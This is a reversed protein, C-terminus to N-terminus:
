YFGWALLAALSYIGLHIMYNYLYGNRVKLIMYPYVFSSIIAGGTFGLGIFLDTKFIQFIHIAGFGFVFLATIQKLSMKYQHLKTVLLIILLQQVLVDLPKVWLYFNNMLLFSTGNSDFPWVPRGLYTLIFYSSVAHVALSIALLFIFDYKTTKSTLGILTKRFYFVLGITVISLFAINLLYRDMTIVQTMTLSTLAFAFIFLAIAQITKNKM